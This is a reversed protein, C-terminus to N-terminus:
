KILLRYNRNIETVIQDFSKDDADIRMHAAIEYLPRRYELLKRIKEEPHEGQLLPRKRDGKLREMVTRESTSLYVVFGMEKLISANEEWLPLGGGTSIVKENMTQKLEKLTTTELQRFYEEGKQEFIDSIKMGSKKEIIEDTDIQQYGLRKALHYGVSTKGAGMFGILIVNKKM